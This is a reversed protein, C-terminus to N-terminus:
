RKVAKREYYRAKALMLEAVLKEDVQCTAGPITKPCDSSGYDPCDHVTFTGYKDCPKNM